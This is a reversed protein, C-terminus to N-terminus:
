CRGSIIQYIWYCQRASLKYDKVHVKVIRSGLTEIWQHPYGFHLINGIDLYVKIFPHNIEDIFRKMELPTLLLPEM